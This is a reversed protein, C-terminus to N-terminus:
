RSALWGAIAQLKADPWTKTTAIQGMMIPYKDPYVKPQGNGKLFAVLEGEKGKYASGIQKLAPGLGQAAQDKTPHHCTSCGSAQFVAAGDEAFVSGAFFASAIVATMIIKKM